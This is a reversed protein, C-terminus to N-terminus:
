KASLVHDKPAAFMQVTIVSKEGRFDGQIVAIGIETFLPSLLNERHSPSALFDQELEYASVYNIALNEGAYIFQFNEKKIFDWPRKGAPSTHAFYDHRLIDQAKAAAARSLPENQALPHLNAEARDRNILTLMNEGTLNTERQGQAPMTVLSFVLLTSVTLIKWVSRIRKNHLYNDEASAVAQNLPLAQAAEVNKNQM